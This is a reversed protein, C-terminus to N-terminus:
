PTFLLRFRIGLAATKLDCRDPKYNYEYRPTQSCFCRGLLARAPYTMSHDACVFLLHAITFVPFNVHMVTLKATSAGLSCDPIISHIHMATCSTKPLIKTYAARRSREPVHWIGHM